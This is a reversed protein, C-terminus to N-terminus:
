FMYKLIFIIIQTHKHQESFFLIPALLFTPPGLTRTGTFRIVIRRNIFMKKDEIIKFDRDVTVGVVPYDTSGRYQKKGRKISEL